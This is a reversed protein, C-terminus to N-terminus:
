GRDTGTRLPRTSHCSPMVFLELLATNGCVLNDLTEKDLRNYFAELAEKLTLRLRCGKVLPCTNDGDAFCELNHQESEFERFIDGIVIEAMPRALTFGGSRGRQTYLYGLQALKYIVQALHSESTNCKEAVMAKTVLVGEHAGCFMLVRMAINTRKTIRM